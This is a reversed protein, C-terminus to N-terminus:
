FRAQSENPYLRGTLYLMNEADIFNIHSISSSESRKTKQAIDELYKLATEEAGDPNSDCELLAIELESLASKPDHSGTFGSVVKACIERSVKVAQVYHEKIVDYNKHSAPLKQLLVDMKHCIGRMLEVQEDSLPEGKTRYVSLVLNLAALHFAIYVPDTFCGSDFLGSCAHGLYEAANHGAYAQCLINCRVLIASVALIIVPNLVQRLSPHVENKLWKTMKATKQQLVQMLGSWESQPHSEFQVTAADAWGQFATSSPQCFDALVKDAISVVGNISAVMQDHTMSDSDSLRLWVTTFLIECYEDCFLESCEPIAEGLQELKHAYRPVTLARSASLWETVLGAALRNDSLSYGFGSVVAKKAEEHRQLLNLATAKRLYGKGWKENIEVCREADQLAQDYDNLKCYCLSRNSLALHSGPDSELAKTYFGIADQYQGKMFSENGDKRFKESDSM